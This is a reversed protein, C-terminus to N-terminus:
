IQHRYVAIILDARTRFHRYITGTGVGAKAAIDRVPAEVGSAVFVVAAADLLAEKNRRADARRSGAAKGAGESGENVVRRVGVRRKSLPVDNRVTVPVRNRKRIM